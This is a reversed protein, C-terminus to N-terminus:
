VGLYMVVHWPSNYGLIKQAMSGYQREPSFNGRGAMGCDLCDKGILVYRWEVGQQWHLLWSWTTWTRGLAEVTGEEYFM